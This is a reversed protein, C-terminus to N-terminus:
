EGKDIELIYFDGTSGEWDEFVASEFEARDAFYFYVM